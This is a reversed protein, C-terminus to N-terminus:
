QSSTRTVPSRDDNGEKSRTSVAGGHTTDNSQPVDAARYCRVQDGITVLYRDEVDIPDPLISAYLLAGLSPLRNRVNGSM